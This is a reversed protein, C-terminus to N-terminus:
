KSILIHSKPTICFKQTFINPHTNSVLVFHTIATYILFRSFLLLKAIQKTTVFVQATFATRHLMQPLCIYGPNWFSYKTNTNNCIAFTHLIKNFHYINTILTKFHVCMHLEINGGQRLMVHCQSPRTFGPCNL